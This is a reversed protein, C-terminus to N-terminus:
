NLSLVMPTNVLLEINERAVTKFGAMEAKIRYIGPSLQPFQYNGTADTVSTRRASTDMNELTISAGELFAGGPDSVTGRISTTAQAWVLTSILSFIVSAFVCFRGTVHRRANMNRLRALIDKKLTRVTRSMRSRFPAFTFNSYGVIGSYNRSGSWRAACKSLCCSSSVIRRNRVLDVWRRVGHLTM